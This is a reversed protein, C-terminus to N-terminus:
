RSPAEGQCSSGLFLTAATHAEFHGEFANGLAPSNVDTYISVLISFRLHMKLDKLVIPLALSQGM